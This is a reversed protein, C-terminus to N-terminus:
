FKIIQPQPYPETTLLVQPRGSLRPETELVWMAVRVMQLELELPVLARKHGRTAVTHMHCVSLCTPLIFNILILFIYKNKNHTHEYKAEVYTQASWSDLARLSWFLIESGRSSSNYVGKIQLPTSPFLGLDKVFAVLTGLQQSM